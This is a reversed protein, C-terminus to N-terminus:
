NIKKAYKQKEIHKHTKEAEYKSKYIEWERIRNQRKAELEEEYTPKQVTNSNLELTSKENIPFGVHKM